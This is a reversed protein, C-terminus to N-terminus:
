LQIKSTVLGGACLLKRAGFNKATLLLYITLFERLRPNGILWLINVTFKLKHLSTTVERCIGMGGNGPTYKGRKGVLRQCIRISNMWYDRIIRQQCHLREERNKLSSPFGSFNWCVPLQCINSWNELLALLLVRSLLPRDIDPLIM